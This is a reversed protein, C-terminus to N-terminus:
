GAGVQDPIILLFRKYPVECLKSLLDSDAFSSSTIFDKEFIKKIRLRKKM